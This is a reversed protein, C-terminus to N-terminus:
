CVCVARCRHLEFLVLTYTPTPLLLMDGGCKGPRRSCAWPPHSHSFGLPAFVANPLFSGSVTATALPKVPIPGVCDCHQPTGPTYIIQGRGSATATSVAPPTVHCHRSQQLLLQRVFCSYQTAIVSSQCQIRSSQMVIHSSTEAFPVHTSIIRCKSSDYKPQHLNGVNRQIHLTLHDNPESIICQQVYQHAPHIHPM